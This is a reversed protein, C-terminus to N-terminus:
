RRRRIQPAKRSGIRIGERLTETVPLGDEIRGLTYTILAFDDKHWVCLVDEGRRLTITGDVQDDVLTYPGDAGILNDYRIDPPTDKQKGPSPSPEVWVRLSLIDDLVIVPQYPPTMLM